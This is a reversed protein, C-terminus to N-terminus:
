PAPEGLVNRLTRRATRRGSGARGLAAALVMSQAHCLACALADAEDTAFRQTGGILLAVMKQIQAKDAAGNGTVASKIQAPAYEAVEIRALGCAALIAGRAQGLVLASRANRQTFVSEVAVV